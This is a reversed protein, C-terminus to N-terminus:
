RVVPILPTATLRFRRSVPHVAGSRGGHNESSELKQSRAQLSGRYERRRLASRGCTMFINSKELVTRQGTRAFGSVMFGSATARGRFGVRSLRSRPTRLFGTAGAPGTSATRPSASRARGSTTGRPRTGRVTSKPSSGSTARVRAPVSGSAPRPTRFVSEPSEAPAPPDFTVDFIESTVDWDAADPAHLFVLDSMHFPLGDQGGGGFAKIGIEITPSDITLVRARVQTADTTSLRATAKGHREDPVTRRARVLWEDRLVRGARQGRARESPGFVTATVDLEGGGDPVSDASSKSIRHADAGGVRRRPHTQGRAEDSTAVLEVAGSRQAFLDVDGTRGSDSGEGVRVRRRERHVSDRHWGVRPQRREERRRGHNGRGPQCRAARGGDALALADSPALIARTDSSCSGCVVAM